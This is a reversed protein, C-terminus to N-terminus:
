VCETGGHRTNRPEAKSTSGPPITLEGWSV